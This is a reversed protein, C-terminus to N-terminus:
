NPCPVELLQFIQADTDVAVEESFVRDAIRRAEGVPFWDGQSCRRQMQYCKGPEVIVSVRVRSVEIIMTKDSESEVRNLYRVQEKSLARDYIRVEDIAGQFYGACQDAYVSTGGTSVASGIIWRTGEVRTAPFQVDASGVSEGNLYSTVRGNEITTVWHTWGGPHALDSTVAVNKLGGHPWVVFNPLAHGDCALNLAMLLSTGTQGGGYGLVMSGNRAGPELKFWISITRDGAPLGDASGEIFADTGNFRYAENTKGLRDTTLEANRVMGHFGHGSVDDASGSFPYYAVLRNTLVESMDQAYGLGHTVWVLALVLLNRTMSQWPNQKMM